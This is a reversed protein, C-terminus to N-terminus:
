QRLERRIIRLGNEPALCTVPNTERSRMKEPAGHRALLDIEAIEFYPPAAHERVFFPLGSGYRHFEELDRGRDGDADLTDFFTELGPRGDRRHFRGHIRLQRGPLTGIYSSVFPRWGQSRGIAMLQADLAIGAVFTVVDRPTAYRSDTCPHKPWPPGLDDFYVRGGDPSQYFYVSAHCAPCTANPNVYSPYLTRIGAHWSWINGSRGVGEYGEGGWGCMCWSPHNYANCM